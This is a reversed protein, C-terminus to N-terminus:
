YLNEIQEWPSRFDFFRFEQTTELPEYVIRKNGDDYRLEIFGSLPFDKRLPFGDFGYDTLIRRLDNHGSFFIGFLDWVEREVWNASKFIEILSKIKSNENVLINIRIRSNYRLSLLYYVVLFRPIKKLLDIGFIDSLVYFQTNTHCKLFLIVKLLDNHDTLELTLNSKDKNISLLRIYKSLNSILFNSFQLVDFLSERFDSEKKM